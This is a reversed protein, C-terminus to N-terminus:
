YLGEGIVKYPLYVMDCPLSDVLEVMVVVVVVCELVPFVVLV